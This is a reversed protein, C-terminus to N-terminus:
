GYARRVTRTRSKAWEGSRMAAGHAPNTGGDLEAGDMSSNIEVPKKKYQPAIYKFDAFLSQEEESLQPVRLYTTAFPPRGLLTHPAHPTPIGVQTTGM